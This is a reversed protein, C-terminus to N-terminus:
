QNLSIQKVSHKLSPGKLANRQVSKRLDMFVCIKESFFQDVMKGIELLIQVLSYSLVSM